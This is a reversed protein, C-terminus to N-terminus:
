VHYSHLHLPKLDTDLPQADLTRKGKIRGFSLRRPHRQFEEMSPLGDKLEGTQWRCGVAVLCWRWTSREVALYLRRDRRWYVDIVSDPRVAQAALLPYPVPPRALDPRADFVSRKDLHHLWVFRRLTM